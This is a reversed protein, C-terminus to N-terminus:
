TRSVGRGLEPENRSRVGVEEKNQLLSGSGKVRTGDCSEEQGHAVAEDCCLISNSICM